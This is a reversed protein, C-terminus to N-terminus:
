APTLRLRAINSLVVKLYAVGAKTMSDQCLPIKAGRGLYLIPTADKTYGAKVNPSLAKYKIEEDWVPCMSEYLVISYACEMDTLLDMLTLRPQQKWEKNCYKLGVNLEVNNKLSNTLRNSCLGEHDM